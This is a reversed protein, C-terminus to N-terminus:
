RHVGRIEELNGFGDCEASNWTSLSSVISV